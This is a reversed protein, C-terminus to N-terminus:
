SQNQKELMINNKSLTYREVVFGNESLMNRKKIDDRIFNRASEISSFKESFMNNFKRWLYYSFLFLSGGIWLFVNQYAIFYVGSSIMGLVIFILPIITSDEKDIDRNTRFNNYEDTRNICFFGLYKKRVVYSTDYYKKHNKIAIEYKM